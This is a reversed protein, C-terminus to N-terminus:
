VKIVGSSLLAQAILGQPAAAPNVGALGKAVSAEVETLLRTNKTGDAPRGQKPTNRAIVVAHVQIDSLRTFAANRGWPRFPVDVPATWGGAALRTQKTVKGIRVASAALYSPQKGPWYRIREWQEQTLEPDREQNLWIADHTLSDPLYTWSRGGLYLDEALYQFFVTILEAADRPPPEPSNPDVGVGFQSEFVLEHEGDRDFVLQADGGPFGSPLSFSLGQVLSQHRDEAYLSVYQKLLQIKGGAVGSFVEPAMAAKEKLRFSSFDFPVTAAASQVPTHTVANGSNQVNLDYRAHQEGFEGGFLLQQSTTSSGAVQYTAPVSPTYKTRYPVNLLAAANHANAHVGSTLFREVESQIKPRDQIRWETVKREFALNKAQKALIREKLQMGIAGGAAVAAATDAANLVVGPGSGTKNVIMLASEGPLPDPYAAINVNIGVGGSHGIRSFTLTVRLDEEYVYYNGQLKNVFVEEQANSTGTGVSTQFVGIGSVTFTPYNSIAIDAQWTDSEYRINSFTTTGAIDLPAIGPGFDIFMRAQVLTPLYLDEDGYYNQIPQFGSYRTEFFGEIPKIPVDLVRRDFVPPVFSEDFRVSWAVFPEQKQASSGAPEVAVEQMGISRYFRYASGDSLRGAVVHTPAPSHRVVSLWVNLRSQLETRQGLLLPNAGLVRLRTPTQGAAFGDLVWPKTM